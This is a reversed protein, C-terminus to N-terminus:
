YYSLTMQMCLCGVYEDGLRCGFDSYSLAGIPSNIVVNIFLSLTLIIIAGNLVPFHKEM